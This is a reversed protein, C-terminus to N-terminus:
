RRSSNRRRILEDRIARVPPAWLFGFSVCGDKTAVTHHLHHAQIRAKWFRNSQSLPVPFRRHVLGDHFMFYIAGYATIGLGVAVLL